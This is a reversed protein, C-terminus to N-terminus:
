ALQCIKTISFSIYLPPPTLVNLKKSTCMHSPNSLKTHAWVTRITWLFFFRPGPWASYRRPKSSCNSLLSGGCRASALLRQCFLKLFEMFHVCKESVPICLQFGCFFSEPSPQKYGCLPKFDQVCKPTRTNRNQSILPLGALVCHICKPTASLM